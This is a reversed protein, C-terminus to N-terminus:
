AAQTFRQQNIAGYDHDTENRVIGNFREVIRNAARVDNQSSNGRTPLQRVNFFYNGITTEPPRFM